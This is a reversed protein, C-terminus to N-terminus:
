TISRLCSSKALYKTPLQKLDNIQVNVTCNIFERYIDFMLNSNLAAIFFTSDLNGAPYLSMSGVDNVSSAKVKVKLLRANPNLINNWCFGENM